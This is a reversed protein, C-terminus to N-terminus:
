NCRISSPSVFCIRNFYNSTVLDFPQIPAKVPFVLTPYLHSLNEIYWPFQLLGESVLILDTRQHLAFQAYWLSFIQEDGSIFVIANPPLVDLAVAIFEKARLDKSINMDDWFLPIRIIFFGLSIILCVAAMGPKRADLFAIVAAVGFPIWISICIWTTAL